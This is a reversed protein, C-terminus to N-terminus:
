RHIALHYSQWTKLVQRKTQNQKKIQLNKQMNHTNVIGPAIFRKRIINVIVDCVVKWKKWGEKYVNIIGVSYRLIHLHQNVM